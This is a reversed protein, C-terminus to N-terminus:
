KGFLARLREVRERNVGMDSYGVRSASRIQIVQHEADMRLEVDDVFRMWRTTFTAWLYGDDALQIEGGAAVIAEKAKTWAAGASGAFSLPAISAMEREGAESCVCNPSEPCTRLRGDVSGVQPQGKPGFAVGIIVLAFVFPIVILWNMSRTM